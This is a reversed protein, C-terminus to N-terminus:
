TGRNTSAPSRVSASRSAKSASQRSRSRSGPAKRDAGGITPMMASFRYGPTAAGPGNGARCPDPAATAGRHCECARTADLGVGVIEVALPAAFSM